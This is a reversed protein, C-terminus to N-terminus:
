LDRGHCINHVVYTVLKTTPNKGGWLSKPTLLVSMTVLATKVARVNAKNPHCETLFSSMGPNWLMNPGGKAWSFGSTIFSVEPLDIAPHQMRLVIENEVGVIPSVDIDCLTNLFATMLRTSRALVWCNEESQSSIALSGEPVASKPMELLHVSMNFCASKYGDVAVSVMTVPSGKKLVNAKYYKYCIGVTHRKCRIEEVGICEVTDFDVCIPFTDASLDAEQVLARRCDFSPSDQSVPSPSTDEAMYHNFMRKRCKGTSKCKCGDKECDDQTSIQRWGQSYLWDDIHEDHISM